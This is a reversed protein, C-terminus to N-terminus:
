NKVVDARGLRSAPDLKATEMARGGVNRVLDSVQAVVKKEVPGKLAELGGAVTVPETSCVFHAVGGTRLTWKVLGPSWLDELGGNEGEASGRYITNYYWCGKPDFAGDSAFFVEPTRHTAPIRYAQRTRKEAALRGQWQYTLERQPRLAFLPRVAFEFPVGTEVMKYSVVVTNRDGLLQVRKELVWGDGGYTWVPSPEDSFGRLFQDGRPYTTGPYENCALEVCRGPARLSEEVRSLLVMRQAGRTIPAVLLGHSRRTNMSAVTSAAYAGLRNTVKWGQETLDGLRVSSLDSLEMSTDERVGVL